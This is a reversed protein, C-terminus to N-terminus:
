RVVDKLGGLEDERHPAHEERCEFLCGQANLHTSSGRKSRSTEHLSWHGCRGLENHRMEEFSGGARLAVRGNGASEDAPGDSVHFCEGSRRCEAMAGLHESIAGGRTLERSRAGGLARLAARGLGPAHAGPRCPSVGSGRLPPM